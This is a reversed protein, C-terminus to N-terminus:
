RAQAKVVEVEWAYVPPSGGEERVGRVQGGLRRALLLPAYPDLAKGQLALRGEEARLGTLWLTEPKESAVRLVEELGVGRPRAPQFAQARLLAVEQRLAEARRKEAALRSELFGKGVLGGAFFLAALFVALQAERPLREGLARRRPRLDLALERALLQPSAGLELPVRQEVREAPLGPPVPPPTPLGLLWAEEVRGTGGFLMLSRVVEEALSESGADAPLTLYRFGQLVRGEFLAVTHSLNELVLLREARSQALAYRWLVLPLPEVRAPRLRALLRAAKQPLAAYLVRVRREDEPAVLLYDALLEEGAFRPSREAEALVAEELPFGPLSPFPQLRLLAFEPGLGLYAGRGGLGRLHHLLREYRPQGEEGLLDPAPFSEVEGERLRLLRERTALLLTM